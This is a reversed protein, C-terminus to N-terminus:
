EHIVESQWNNNHNILAIDKYSIQKYTKDPKTVYEGSITKVYFGSAGTFGSVYGRQGFASVTDGLFIGKLQKVNKGNRKATRNPTKRGKRPIGEHLSRKKKRFQKIRLVADPNSKIAQIGTIAIADNYHSKDLALADRAIKTYSGYTIKCDLRRFIQRRLINMFATERHLKPKRFTHQIRGQHFDDHCGVHVTVLNDARDTGGDRRQIVHHTQLVGGKKRCIQCTYKDRAFVYYRSNWFGFADGQQYEEGHINPNRLKAVDFKGVEVTIRPAPLVGAFRNIWHITNDVRSQISPPLWGASRGRNEFRPKRYRTKRNRRSRRYIRRVTLLKSVDDRLEIIGKGFVKNGSTIAFGVYKAGADIGIKLPQVTEGTAHLLQITFPKYSIIKAKGQKLLLRAKQPKCPILPHNRKNKVFVRM